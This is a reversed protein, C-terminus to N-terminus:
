AANEIPRHAVPTIAGLSGYLKRETRLTELLERLSEEVFGPTHRGLEERTLDIFADLLRAHVRCSHRVESEIAIGRM